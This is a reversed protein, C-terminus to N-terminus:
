PFTVGIRYYKRDVTNNTQPIILMGGSGPINTKTTVWPDVFLNTKCQIFYTRGTASPFTLTQVDQTASPDIQIWLFSNSDLPDTGAITEQDDPVSDNDDDPDVFDLLGDGDSNSLTTEASDSNNALNTDGAAYVTARNTLTNLASTQVIANMVISTSAGGALNGLNYTVLNNSVSNPAPVSLDFLVETPLADTVVVGSAPSPSANSVTITYVLGTGMSLNTPNVTKTLVLDVAVSAATTTFSSSPEVWQDHCINTGRFTFYVNTNEMLGGVNVNLASQLNTFSGVAVSNSWGFVN